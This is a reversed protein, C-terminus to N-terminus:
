LQFLFIGTNKIRSEDKNIKKKRKKKERCNCSLIIKGFPNLVRYRCRAKQMKASKFVVALYSNRKSIERNM